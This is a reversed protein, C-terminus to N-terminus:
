KNSQLTAANSIAEGLKQPSLTGFAIDFLPTSIGFGLNPNKYHHKMHNTRIGQLIGELKGGHHIFYHCCDYCVYGFLMGAFWAKALAIPLTALLVAHVLFIVIAAPAPPFVLRLRDDPSKHHCGHLLFHMTIGWSSTPKAHFLFRHICYEMAGWAGMGIAFFALVEPGGTGQELSQRATWAVLPLWMTPVIWWPTRTLNEMWEKEFFRLNIRHQPRYVWQNYKNGLQGVQAVVPRDLNVDM